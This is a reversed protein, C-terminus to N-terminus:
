TAGMPDLDWRISLGAPVGTMGHLLDSQVARASGRAGRTAVGRLAVFLELPLMARAQQVHAFFWTMAAILEATAHDATVM